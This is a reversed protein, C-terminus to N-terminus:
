VQQTKQQKKNYIPLIQRPMKKMGADLYANIDINNKNLCNFRTEGALYAKYAEIRMLTRRGAM